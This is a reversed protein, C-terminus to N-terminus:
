FVSRGNRRNATRAAESGEALIKATTVTSDEVKQMEMALKADASYGAPSAYSGTAAGVAVDGTDKQQKRVAPLRTGINSRTTRSKQASTNADQRKKQADYAIANEQQQLALAIRLDKEEQSLNPDNIEPIDVANTGPKVGGSGMKVYNSM